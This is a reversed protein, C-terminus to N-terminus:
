AEKALPPPGEPWFLQHAPVLHGATDPMEATTLYQQLFPTLGQLPTFTTMMFAGPQATLTRTLCEMYVDEPPEEDLWVIEQETGQFTRRGQDFSKFNLVSRGGAAHTVWVQDICKPVGGSKRTTHAVLHRPLMGTWEQNDVNEIPGLMAIQLVDRTTLMTDGAAWARTAKQFVRGHWWPPYIGTLHATLEYAAAETKGIRNAALFLKEKHEVSAAMFQLHKQYLVRCKGQHDQARPSHTICGPQCDPFYQFYKYGEWMKVINWMRLFETAVHEPIQSPDVTM